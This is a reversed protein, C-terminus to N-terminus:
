VNLEPSIEFNFDIDELGGQPYEEEMAEGQPIPAATTPTARAAGGELLSGNRLALDQDHLRQIRGELEHLELFWVTPVLCLLYFFM